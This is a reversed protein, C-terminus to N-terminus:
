EKHEGGEPPGFYCLGVIACKSPEQHCQPCTPGADLDQGVGHNPRTPKPRIPKPRTPKPRIPDAPTPTLLAPSPEAKATRPPTERNARYYTFTPVAAGGRHSRAEEVRWDFGYPAGESPTPDYNSDAYALLALANKLDRLPVDSLRARIVPLPIREDTERLIALIRDNLPVPKPVEEATPVPALALVDSACESGPEDKLLLTLAYTTLASRSKMYDPLPQGSSKARQLVRDVRALLDPDVSVTVITSM